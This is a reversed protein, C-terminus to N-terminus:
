ADLVRRTAKLLENLAFPKTLSTQHQEPWWRLAPVTDSETMRLVRLDPLQALLQRAFTEAEGSVRAILLKFPPASRAPHALATKLSAAATVRYGDATLIGAFMKRVVEDHEILLIAENGRTVVPPSILAPPPTIAPATTAPLLIEFTAGTLPASRVTIFGNSQQVIGYVIPLGLGTGKGEPKTTFFPEFLHEQTHADMGTGNDAVTLVVYHGPPTDTSRRHHATVIERPATSITVRGNDRLADRANITLNLLVQQLHVPDAQVYLPAPALRLELQGTEGLLRELLSANERVIDNLSLTQPHMPQRRGFALLQRTLAAAKEGAKHVEEIDHLAQPFAGLRPKLIECYGNIVSMLNNFDHAVGGALRGVADLRQARALAEQLKRKESIDRYIAVIHQARGADDFVPSFTWAAYFSTGGRRVLYGEGNLSAGPALTALWTRLREREAADAHLVGHPQGTLEGPALGAMAALSDNAYLITFGRPGLRRRAIFVGEAQGRVAAALLEADVAPRVPRRKM